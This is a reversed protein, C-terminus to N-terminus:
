ARDIRKVAKMENNWEHPEPRLADLALEWASRLFWLRYNENNGHEAQSYM